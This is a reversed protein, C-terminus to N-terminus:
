DGMAKDSDSESRSKESRYSSIFVESIPPASSWVTKVTREDTKVLKRAWELREEKYM